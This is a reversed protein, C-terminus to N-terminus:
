SYSMTLALLLLVWLVFCGFVFLYVGRWTRLWPLSTLEDRDDPPVKSNTVGDFKM